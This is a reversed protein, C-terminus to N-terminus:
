AIVPSAAGELAGKRNRGNPHPLLHLLLDEDLDPRVSRIIHIYVDLQAQGPTGYPDEFEPRAALRTTILHSQVRALKTQLPDRDLYEKLAAVGALYHGLARAKPWTLNRVTGCTVCYPHRVTSAPSEYEKALWLRERSGCEHHAHPTHEAGTSGAIVVQRRGHVRRGDPAKSQM